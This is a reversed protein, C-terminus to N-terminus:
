IKEAYQGDQPSWSGPPGTDMHRREKMGRKEKRRFSELRRV